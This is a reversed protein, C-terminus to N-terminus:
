VKNFVIRFLFRWGAAKCQAIRLLKPILRETKAEELNILM